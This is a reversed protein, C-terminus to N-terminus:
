KKTSSSNNERALLAFLARAVGPNSPQCRPCAQGPSPINLWYGSVISRTAQIDQYLERANVPQGTPNTSLGAVVRVLPNYSRAATAARRVAAAYNAPVREKEQLQLDIIDAFAAGGYRSGGVSPLNGLQFYLWHHRHAIAAMLREYYAPRRQELAPTLSWRENDYGIGTLGAPPRGKKLVAQFASYSPFSKIPHAVWGQPVGFRGNVIVYTSSHDLVTRTLPDSLVKRLASGAIIWTRPGPGPSTSPRVNSSIPANAVSSIPTCGALALALLALFRDQPRRGPHRRSM